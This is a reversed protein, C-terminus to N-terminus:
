SWQRLWDEDVPHIGSTVRVAYWGWGLSLLGAACAVRLWAGYVREAAEKNREGREQDRQAKWYLARRRALKAATGWDNKVPRANIKKEDAM